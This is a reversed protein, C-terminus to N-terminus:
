SLVSCLQCSISYGWRSQEKLLLFTLIPIGLKQQLKMVNKINLFTLDYSENEKIVNAWERVGKINIALHSPTKGKKFMGADLIKQFVM